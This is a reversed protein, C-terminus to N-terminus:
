GKKFGFRAFLSQLGGVIGAPFFVLILIFVFGEIALEWNEMHGLVDPIAFLIFAGIVGGYISGSGGLYLMLLLKVSLMMGFSSPSVLASYHAYLSGALAALGASFVFTAVKVRAVNIGMCAAAEEDTHIAKMNRGLATEGIVLCVLVTIMVVIWVLYYYNLDTDFVYGLLEFRPIHTIGSSGGFYEARILSEVIFGFGLTAIALYYGKLRLTPIGVIWAVLATLVIGSVMGVLPPWGLWVTTMASTYAGIAFFGNHGLSIQSCYGLILDYGVVILGYIGVYIMVTIWYSDPYLVPFGLVALCLLPVIIRNSPM